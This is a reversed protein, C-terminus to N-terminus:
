KSRSRCRSRRKMGSVVVCPNEALREEGCAGKEGRQRSKM